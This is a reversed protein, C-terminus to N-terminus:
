FKADVLSMKRTIAKLLKKGTKVFFNRKLHFNAELFQQRIQNQPNSRDPPLRKVKRNTLKRQRSTENGCANTNVNECANTACVKGLFLHTQM